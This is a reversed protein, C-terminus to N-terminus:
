MDGSTSYLANMSFFLGLLANGHSIDEYAEEYISIIKELQGKANDNMFLLPVCQVGNFEFVFPHPAISNSPLELLSLSKIMSIASDYSKFCALEDKLSDIGSNRLYEELGVISVGAKNFIDNQICKAEVWCTDDELKTCLAKSLAVKNGEVGLLLSAERISLLTPPTCYSLRGVEGNVLSSSRMIECEPLERYQKIDVLDSYICNFHFEKPAELSM